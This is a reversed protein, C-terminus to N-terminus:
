IDAASGGAESQFDGKAAYHAVAYTTQLNDSTNLAIGASLILNNNELKFGNLDDDELQPPSGNLWTKGTASM